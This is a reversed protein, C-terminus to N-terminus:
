HDRKHIAYAIAAAVADDNSTPPAPKSTPEPEETAPLLALIKPLMHIFGAIFTLAVFVVTLGIAADTLYKQTINHFGM